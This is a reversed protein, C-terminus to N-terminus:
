GGLNSAQALLLLVLQLPQAQLTLRQLLQPAVLRVANPTLRVFSDRLLFALHGVLAGFSLRLSLQGALLKGLPLHLTQEVQLVHLPLAVGRGGGDATLNFSQAPLVFQQTTADRVIKQLVLQGSGVPARAAPGEDPPVLRVLAGGFRALVHHAVAAKRAARGVVAKGRQVVHHVIVRSGGGVVVVREVGRRNHVLAVQLALVHPCTAPLLHVHDDLRPHQQLKHRLLIRLTVHRLALLQEQQPVHLQDAVRLGVALLVSVGKANLRLM